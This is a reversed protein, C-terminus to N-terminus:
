RLRLTGGGTNSAEADDQWSLLLEDDATHTLRITSADACRDWTDDELSTTLVVQCRCVGVGKQRDSDTGVDAYGLRELGAHTGM